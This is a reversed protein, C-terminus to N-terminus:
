QKPNAHEHKSHKNQQGQLHQQQCFHYLLVILLYVDIWLTKFIITYLKNKNTKKKKKKIIETYWIKYVIYFFWKNIFYFLICICNKGFVLM